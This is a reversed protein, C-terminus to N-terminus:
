TLIKVGEAQLVKILDLPHNLIYKAGNATLEEEPRYGWSVGVAFMNANAATQMDIGSDGVFILEETKLGLSKSIEIAESPNPKKLSEISLGVIPNFYNPFLATTIKKTLEDSKNSFVSLKINHSILHDLLEIIGDYPKTKNTCNDRYEEIMLQYCHDIHKEDNHTEPLSKSVLNRLGSGIFYQYADYDHTPYNRGQLVSNMADAIDELSNVLTGDLDFIVGKFKM